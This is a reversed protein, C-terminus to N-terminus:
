LKKGEHVSLIHAKLERKSDFEIGCKDCPQCKEIEQFLNMHLLEKPKSNMLNKKEHVSVIHNKM